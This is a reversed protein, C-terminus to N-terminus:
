GESGDGLLRYRRMVTFTLMGPTFTRARCPYIKGWAAEEIGYTERIRRRLLFRTLFAPQNAHALPVVVSLGSRYGCVKMPLNM